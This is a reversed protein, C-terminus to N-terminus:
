RMGRLSRITLRPTHDSTYTDLAISGDRYMRFDYTEAVVASSSVQLVYECETIGNQALDINPTAQANRKVQCAVFTGTTLQRTTVTGDTIGLTTDGTGYFCMRTADTTGCTDTVLSYASAADKDFLLVFGTSDCDATTCGVQIRLRRVGGISTFFDLDEAGDVFPAGASTEGGHSLRWRFHQQVYVQSSAGGTNDTCSQNTIALLPQVNKSLSATLDGLLASDTVDGSAWSFDPLSGMSVALTCDITNQGTRTCSNVTVTSGNDRATFTDPGSAPLLPPFLNNEFVIILSTDDINGVECSSFAITEFAGQDPVSGNYVSDFGDVASTLIAGNDIAASSAKLTFDGNAPDLFVDTETGSTLNNSITNGTGEDIINPSGDCDLTINNRVIQNSGRVTVCELTSGSFTNNYLKNSNGNIKVRGSDWFVNNHAINNSSNGGFVLPGKMTRLKSNTCVNYRFINNNLAGGGFFQLCYGNVNDIFVHEFLGDHGKWYSGHAGPSSETSIINIISGRRVIPSINDPGIGIGSGTSWMMGEAPGICNFDELIPQLVVGTNGTKFCTSPKLGSTISSLDITIFQYHLVGTRDQTHHIAGVAQPVTNNTPKLVFWNAETTDISTLTGGNPMINLLHEDYDGAGVKLTDNDSMCSAGSVITLRSQTALTPQSDSAFCANGDGNSSKSVWYTATWAPTSLALLFLSSFFLRLM